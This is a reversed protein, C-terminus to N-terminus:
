VAIGAAKLYTSKGAMNPGTLFVLRAGADIELPNGVAEDLLPHYLGEASVRPTEADLIEPLVLGHERTAAALSCWVDVQYVFTALRQLSAFETTRFARDLALVRHAALRHVDRSIRLAQIDASDVCQRLERRWDALLPPLLENELRIAIAVAERALTQALALAALVERYVDAHVGRIWWSDLWLFVGNLRELHVVSSQTYREISLWASRGLLSDFQGGRGALWTVVQQTERIRNADAMPHRFRERLLDAGGATRTRNAWDWLSAQFGEPKLIGLDQLTQWDVRMVLAAFPPADGM